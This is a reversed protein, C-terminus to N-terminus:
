VHCSVCCIEMGDVFWALLRGEGGPFQSPTECHLIGDEPINSRTVKTLVSTESSNDSGDDPHCSNTLYTRVVAVHRLMGSSSM